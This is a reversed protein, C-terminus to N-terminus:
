RVSGTEISVIRHGRCTHHIASIIAELHDPPISVSSIQEKPKEFSALVWVLLKILGASVFAIVIAMAYVLLTLEISQGVSVEMQM